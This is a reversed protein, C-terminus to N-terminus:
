IHISRHFSWTNLQVLSPLNVALHTNYHANQFCRLNILTPALISNVSFLLVAQVGKWAKM